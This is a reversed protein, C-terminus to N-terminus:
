VPTLTEDTPIPLSRFGEPGETVTLSKLGMVAAQEGPNALYGGVVFM